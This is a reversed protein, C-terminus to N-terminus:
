SLLGWSCPMIAGVLLSKLGSPLYGEQVGKTGRQWGQQVGKDGRNYGETVGRIGRGFGGM